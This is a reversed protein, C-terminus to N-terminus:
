IALAVFGWEKADFATQAHAAGMLGVFVVFLMLWLVRM